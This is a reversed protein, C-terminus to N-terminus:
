KENIVDKYIGLINRMITNPNHRNMAEIREYSSLKMALNDDKFISIIHQALIEYEEVNYLLGTVKDEIMDPIGGVYSSIVPTGIMQAEGVSNSSNEITSPSIFVNALCYRKVMESESLPGTFIINKELGFINIRKTIFQGYSYKSIFNRLLNTKKIELSKGSIYAKFNPYERKVLQFAKLAIHFGKLSYSAQSVFISQKEIKNINWKNKYFSSRLLENCTHYHILPNYIISHYKDWQTRGIIHSVSQIYKIESKGHKITINRSRFILISMFANNLIESFDFGTFYYRQCVSVLGQISIIYKIKPFSHILNLMEPYETGNIHIIDPNINRIIQYFTKKFTLDNKKLFLNLPFLYYTISDGKYYIIEKIESSLSFIFLNFDTQKCLMEALSIMWGGGYTRNLCYKKELEPFVINSTWIINM